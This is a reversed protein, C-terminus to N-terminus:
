ESGETRDDRVGSEDGDSDDECKLCDFVKPFIILTKPRVTGDVGARSEEEVRM